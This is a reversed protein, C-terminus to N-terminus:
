EGGLRIAFLIGFGIITITIIAIIMYTVIKKIQTDKYLEAKKKVELLKEKHALEKQKTTLQSAHVREQSHKQKKTYKKVASYEAATASGYFAAQIGGVIAQWPVLGFEGFNSIYNGKM